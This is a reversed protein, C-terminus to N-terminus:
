AGGTGPASSPYGAHGFPMGQMSQGPQVLTAIGTRRHRHGARLAPEGIRRRRDVPLHQSLGGRPALMQEMVVDTARRHMHM